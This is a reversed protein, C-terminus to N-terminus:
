GAFAQQYLARLEPTDAASFGCLTVQGDTASVLYSGGVQFSVASLLEALDASPATVQVQEAVDGRFVESTTLTVLTGDVATVTGAFAVQQLALMEANPVACKLDVGTELVLQTAASSSPAPASSSPAPAAPTATDQQAPATSAAPSTTVPAQAVPTPQAGGTFTTWALGAAVVVAAAAALAPVPLRRPASGAAPRLQADAELTATVLAALEDHHLPPLSHARDMTRLLTRLEPDAGWDGRDRSSGNRETM